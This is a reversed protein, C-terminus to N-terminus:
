FTIGLGFEQFYGSETVLLGYKVMWSKGFRAMLGFEPYYEIYSRNEDKAWVYEDELDLYYKEFRTVSQLGIGAYVWLPYVLGYSLGASTRLHSSESVNQAVPDSWWSTELESVTYDVMEGLEANFKWLAVDTTFTWYYSLKKIKMGGVGMGIPADTQLTYNLYGVDTRGYRRRAKKIKLSVEESHKGAPYNTLYKDYYNIATANQGKDLAENGLVYYSNELIEHAESVHKGKPYSELYEEYDTVYNSKRCQAYTQDDMRSKETELKERAESAYMGDPYRQLYQDYASVTNMRSVRNWDEEDQIQKDSRLDYKYRNNGGAIVHISEYKVVSGNVFKLRIEGFGLSLTLPTKGKYDGDIYVEVGKPNTSISVPEGDKLTEEISITKNYEITFSRELPAYNELELRLDHSGCLLDTVTNPTTGAANGDIFIRAGFPISVIDVSGTEASLSLDLQITKGAQVDLQKSRESYYQKTAVVEYVGELLRGTWHGESKKIGDILVSAGETTTIEVDAFSPFLQMEISTTDEDRVIVKESKNQYWKSQLALRHEGSDIEKLTAPTTKGTSRGDLFIEMGAEPQSSVYIDGFKPRLSFDMQKKEGEIVLKGAEPYYRPYEIRYNYEGEKYKRNFPTQGIEKEDIYVTAGEPESTIVLWQAAVELEDVITTVKGSVLVMEYVSAEKISEPFNYNRLVGLQAHKITIKRSGHPVYVWIEGTKQETKVIGLMGGEFKFGPQTTVVKILAAKDGNQDIEPYNVRADLDRPLLRFSKVGINQGYAVSCFVIVVFTFLTRM